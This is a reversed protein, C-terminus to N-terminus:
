VNESKTHIYRLFPWILLVPMTGIIIGMWQLPTLPVTDFIDSGYQVILIQVLVICGMIGYFVPNGRFVPPMIGNIGRCNIGNWVQAIVFGSFFVSAQQEPKELFPFGIAMCGVGALIYLGATLLIARKMYPTIVSANKPIPKKTMLAPHPAESCLALAALSDMIINIWLLQMITFPPPFGLLPSIFTLISASINITLQFILFRQINEFLARGWWIAREITPFSDDLLIIDSAERAVETGAIGMALGVDANRLAPADNTGDGTVAVVEGRAQLAQVLLLKDHPESRALVELDPVIHLREEDSLGRFVPGTMVIGDSLIGTERAIATATEPSDGTVMKVTIGADNCTKVAERVDPRVEDRIGVYGDWQMVAPESEEPALEAHAFALTRMARGALTHIMSLDPPPSCYSAIIEPAGKMLIYRRSGYAVITSMRKKKSTFYDQSIVPWAKRIDSYSIGSRHLWRLLAAETSNGVTLLRDRSPELEATSNVAANLTIWESPDQPLESSLSPVEISSAAVEMQNMTLTGTKDTCIVTVSGVTECAILRRVLSKARTMKRMTLALSVTVSVPLGEPVSVVIIVVAFMCAHLIVGAIELPTQPPTGIIFDQILVVSIILGAMLYGFRSIIEALNRLKIQLPTEPRSGEILSSAIEGMKTQDGVAATIMTARGGTIYSGKLLTDSVVKRIPESEGTFASEDVETESADLLYGDAPVMDGAELLVIDGVVVDRMPISSPSGNRIVKVATDDRMAHLADFERNSKFETLFAITTALIVALAIGITDLLSEGELVAVIASLVVAVLLIRIIPDQYKELYQKWIPIRRPPTLENTGYQKRSELVTESSLGDTGFRRLEEQPIM